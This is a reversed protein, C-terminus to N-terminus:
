ACRQQAVFYTRLPSVNLYHLILNKTLMHHVSNVVGYLYEEESYEGIRTFLSQETFMAKKEKGLWIRYDM